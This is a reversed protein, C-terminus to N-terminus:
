AAMHSTTQEGTIRDKWSTVPPPPLAESQPLTMNMALQAAWACMDVCDDNTGEPFRLMEKRIDNYVDPRSGEFSFFFKHVQSRGQMPRARTEKDSIPVLSEDFTVYKRHKELETRVLPWLAEYISGREGAFVEPNWKLVLAVIARVIQMTGWRGRVAELLYLDDNSTLAWVGGVTYDRRSTRQSIAFDFTIFCRANPLYDPDFRRDILDSAKFFDGDDPTPNQQFLASWDKPPMPHKLKMLAIRNYREPHLAEGVKRLLRADPEEEPPESNIFIEGSKLLYENSEAIAPYRIVDWQELEEEPIGQKRLMEQATLERGQVDDDHWRTGILLIGGGPALRTRFVNLYWSHTNDRIQQSQAAIADKILDDAIGINMGKGNIGVGVGAAIYGGGKTTKWSEIGQSDTRLRCEPFLAQFEPDKLRDRINRSWDVPLDLGYSAGIIGLHPYQGLAWSPFMDSAELSKGHRPPMAIMLRPSREHVVDDLFKELRRAIDSHVWGPKYKPDFTLMFFLLRRRALERRAMERQLLEENTEPEKDRVQEILLRAQAETRRGPIVREAAYVADTIEKTAYSGFRRYLTITGESRECQMCFDMYLLEPKTTFIRYDAITRDAVGCAKCPIKVLELSM